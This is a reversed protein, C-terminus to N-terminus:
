VIFLFGLDASNHDGFVLRPKLPNQKIWGSIYKGSPEASRCLNIRLPRSGDFCPITKFLILFLAELYDGSKKLTGTCKIRDLSTLSYHFNKWDPRM